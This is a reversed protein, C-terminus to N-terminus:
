LGIREFKLIQEQDFLPARVSLVPFALHGTYGEPLQLPLLNYREGNVMVPLDLTNVADLDHIIGIGDAKLVAEKRTWVTFFRQRAEQGGAEIWILEEPHLIYQLSNIEFRKWEQVDIGIPGDCVALVALEGSHSTNFHFWGNIFPKNKDDLAYRHLLDANYDSQLISELLMLRAITRIKQDHFFKYELIEDAMQAPLLRRGQEVIEDPFDDTHCVKVSIM